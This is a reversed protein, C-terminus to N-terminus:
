KKGEELKNIIDKIKVLEDEAEKLDDKANNLIIQKNAVNIEANELQRKLMELGDVFQFSFTADIDQNGMGIYVDYEMKDPDCNGILEEFADCLSKMIYIRSTHLHEFLVMIADQLEYCSGKFKLDFQYSDDSERVKWGTKKLEKLIGLLFIATPQFVM